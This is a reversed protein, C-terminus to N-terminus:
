PRARCWMSRERDRRHGAMTARPVVREANRVKGSPIPPANSASCRGCADLDRRRHDRGAPVAGSTRVAATWPRTDRSFFISARARRDRDAADGKVSDHCTAGDRCYARRCHERRHVALRARGHGAGCLAAAGARSVSQGSLEGRGDRHGRKGGLDFGLLGLRRHVRRPRRLGHPHLCITRRGDPFARGLGAFVAAVFMAGGATLVWAAVSNLGYPALSAPLLFVGSGIMNGVVLAVCMWPGLLRATESVAAARTRAIGLAM